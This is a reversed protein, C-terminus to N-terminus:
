VSCDTPLPLGGRGWRMRCSQRGRSADFTCLWFLKRSSGSGIGLHLPEYIYSLLPRSHCQSIGGACCLLRGPRQSPGRSPLPHGPFLSFPPFPPFIPIALSQFPSQVPLSLSPVFCPSFYPIQGPNLFLPLGLKRQQVNVHRRKLVTLLLCLRRRRLNIM